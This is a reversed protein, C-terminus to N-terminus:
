GPLFIGTEGRSRRCKVQLTSDTLTGQDCGLKDAVYALDWEAGTTVTNTFVTTPWRKPVNIIGFPDKREDKRGMEDLQINLQHPQALGIKAPTLVVSSMVNSKSM